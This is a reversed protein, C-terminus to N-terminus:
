PFSESPPSSGSWLSWLARQDRKLRLMQLRKSSVQRMVPDTLIAQIEPDAMAREQQQKREADTGEGRTM